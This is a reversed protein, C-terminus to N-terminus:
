KEDGHLTNKLLERDFESLENFSFWDFFENRVIDLPNDDISQLNAAAGWWNEGQWSLRYALYNALWSVPLDNLKAVRLVEAPGRL